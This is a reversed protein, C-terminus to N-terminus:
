TSCRAPHPHPRDLVFDSVEAAPGLSVAPQGLAPRHRLLLGAARRRGRAPATTPTLDFDKRNAWVEASDHAVFIPMDGFLLVGRENAHERLAAWQRFFVFQEWRIYDLEAALRKRAQTLARSERRAPGEAVGVLTGASRTSPRSCPTTTSGTPTSAASPTWRGASPTAAVHCFRQHAQAAGGGQRRRRARTPRADLWGDQVLPELGILRANGAHASSTQYPSGSGQPPGVPLMQWLRSGATPSFNVFNFAEWGLDGNPGAGPLSTLHLLV